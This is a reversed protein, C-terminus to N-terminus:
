NWDSIAPTDRTFNSESPHWQVKSIIHWCQNLYHNPATLCCAMVHALTSRSGQRWITDSPWLSDVWQPPAVCIHTLLKVMVPLKRCWRQFITLQVNLRLCWYYKIQFQSPYLPGQGGCPLIDGIQKMDNHSLSAVRFHIKRTKLHIPVHWKLM